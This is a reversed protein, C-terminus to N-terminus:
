FHSPDQSGCMGPVRLPNQLSLHGSRIRANATLTKWNRTIKELKFTFPSPCLMPPVPTGAPAIQSPGQGIGLCRGAGGELERLLFQFFLKLLNRGLFQLNLTIPSLVHLCRPFLYAREKLPSGWLHVCRSLLGLCSLFLQTLFEFACLAAQIAFQYDSHTAVHIDARRYSTHSVHTIM